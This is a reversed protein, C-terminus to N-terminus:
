MNEFLNENEYMGIFPPRGPGYPPRMPPRPGPMPPRPPFQPRGPRNLIERILLIRILDRLGRNNQRTKRNEKLNAENIKVETKRESVRSNNSTTKVENTLNRNLKVEEKEEMAYYIEDAMNELDERTVTGVIENCKKTIMPYIIRYIEPYCDELESNINNNRNLDNQMNYDQYTHNNYSYIDNQPYGLISRIYEEYSQNYM